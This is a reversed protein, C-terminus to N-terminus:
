RGRIRSLLEQVQPLTMSRKSWNKAAGIGTTFPEHTAGDFAQIPRPPEGAHDIRYNPASGTKGLIGIRAVVEGGDVPRLKAMTSKMNRVYDEADDLYALVDELTADPSLKM